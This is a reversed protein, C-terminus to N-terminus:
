LRAAAYVEAVSVPAFEDLGHLAQYVAYHEAPCVTALACRDAHPCPVTSVAFATEQSAEAQADHIIARSRYETGALYPRGEVARAGFVPLRHKQEARWLLCPHPMTNGLVGLTWRRDSAPASPLAALFHDVIDQERLASEGYPDRTTQRMPYPMHPHIAVGRARALAVVAPFEALNQKVVVTSIAVHRPASGALLGEFAAMVEAFSGPTGTVAEHAAATVGYIPVSILFDKPMRALFERRFDPDALRRCPSYVSLRPFGYERVIDLVDLVRSYTLPDIGNLRVERVGQDRVMRLQVRIRQLAAEGEDLPRVYSKVSCFSCRQGCETDIALNFSPPPGATAPATADSGRATTATPATTQTGVGRDAPHALARLATVEAPVEVALGEMSKLQLLALLWSGLSAVRPSVADLDQTFGIVALSLEGVRGFGEEQAGASLRVRVTDATAPDVFELIYSRFDLAGRKAVAPLYVARFMFGVLPAGDVVVEPALFEAIGPPDFYLARRPAPLLDGGGEATHGPLARLQPGALARFRALAAEDTKAGLMLHPFHAGLLFEGRAIMAAFARTTEAAERDNLGTHKQYMVAGMPTEVLAKNGRATVVVQLTAGDRPRELWISVGGALLGSVSAVSWEGPARRPGGAVPLLGATKTSTM